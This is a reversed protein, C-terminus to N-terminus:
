GQWSEIIPRWGDLLPWRERIDPDEIALEVPFATRLVSSGSPYARIDRGSVLKHSKTGVGDAAVVVDAEMKSGDELIVGAKQEAEDEFYDVVRKGFTVDVGISKLQTFLAAIFKPRNQRYFKITRETGDPHSYTVELFTL